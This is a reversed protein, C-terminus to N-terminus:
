PKSSTPHPLPKASASQNSALYWERFEQFVGPHYRTNRIRQAALQVTLHSTGWKEFIPSMARSVAEFTDADHRIYAWGQEWASVWFVDTPLPQLVSMIESVQECLNEYNLCALETSFESGDDAIFTTKTTM